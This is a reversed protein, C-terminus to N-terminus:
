DSEFWDGNWQSSKMASALVSEGGADRDLGREPDVGDQSWSDSGGRSGCREGAARPRRGSVTVFLGPGVSHLIRRFDMPYSRDMPDSPSEASEWIRLGKDSLPNRRNSRCSPPVM